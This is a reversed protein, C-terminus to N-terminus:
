RLRARSAPTMGFEAALRLYQAAAKTQVMLWPSKRMAGDRDPVILPAGQLAIASQRLTGFTSCLAVFLGISLPDLRGDARLEDFNERWFEKAEASLYEPPPMDAPLGSNHDPGPAAAPAASLRRKGPNGHLEHLYKPLPKRGRM